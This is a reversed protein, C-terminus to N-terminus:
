VVNCLPMKPKMLMDMCRSQDIWLKDPAIDLPKHQLVAGGQAMLQSGSMDTYMGSEPKLEWDRVSDLIWQHNVVCQHPQNNAWEWKSGSFEFAVQM